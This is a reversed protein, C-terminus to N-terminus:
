RGQGPYFVGAPLHIVTGPGVEATELTQEDNGFDVNARGEVVCITEIKENHYQLSLTQWRCRGSSRRAQCCVAGGRVRGFGDLYDSPAM